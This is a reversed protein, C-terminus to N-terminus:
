LRLNATLFGVGFPAEYSYIQPTYNTHQLIGLLMAIQKAGCEKAEKLKDENYQILGASNKTILFEQLKTDFEKGAPSFGGPSDTELAHSLNASAIIAFRKGNESLAKKLLLGCDFHKKLSQNATEFAIVLFKEGINQNLYFLPVAFDYGLKKDSKVVLPMGGIRITKRLLALTEFDTEFELKTAMDGLKEFDIQYVNNIYLSFYDEAGAHSSIVIITDPNAEWLEQNIKAIAEITKGLKKLGEKGVTPLLIASHPLVASFVLM